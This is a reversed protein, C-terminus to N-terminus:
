GFGSIRVTQMSAHYQNYGNRVDDAAHVGRSFPPPLGSRLNRRRQMARHDMHNLM